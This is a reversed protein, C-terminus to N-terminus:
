FPKLRNDRRPCKLGIEEEKTFDRIHILVNRSLFSPLTASFVFPIITKCSLYVGLFQAQRKRSEFMGHFTIAKEITNKM